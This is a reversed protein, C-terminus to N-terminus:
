KAKEKLYKEIMNEICGNVESWDDDSTMKEIDTLYVWFDKSDEAREECIRQAINRIGDENIKEDNLEM